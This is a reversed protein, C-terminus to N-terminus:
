PFERLESIEKGEKKKKALLRRVAICALWEFVFSDRFFWSSHILLKSVLARKLGDDTRLRELYEDYGCNQEGVHEEMFQSFLARRYNKLHLGLGKELIMVAQKIQPTGM